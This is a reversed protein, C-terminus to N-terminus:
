ISVDIKNKRVYKINVVADAHFVINTTTSDVIRGVLIGYNYKKRIFNTLTAHGDGNTFVTPGNGYKDTIIGPGSLQVFAKYVPAGSYKDSVFVTIETKKRCSSLILCISLLILLPKKM